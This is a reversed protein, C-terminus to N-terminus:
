FFRFLSALFGEPQDTFTYPEGKVDKLLPKLAEVAPWGLSADPGPNGFKAEYFVKADLTADHDVVVVDGSKWKSTGDLIALIVQAIAKPNGSNEKFYPNFGNIGDGFGEKARDLMESQFAGYNLGIVKINERAYIGAALKVVHDLAAKTSTYPIMQSFTDEDSQSQAIEALRQNFLSGVSSSFLITGGGGKRFAIIAHKLTSIASTLNVDVLQKLIDHPTNDLTAGPGMRGEVGANAYVVNIRGLQREAFTFADALSKPDSVDCTTYAAIGGEASIANAVEKLKDTRRAALVLRFGAKALVQAVVLGIGSSAGTVFATM